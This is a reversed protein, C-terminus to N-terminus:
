KTHLLSVEVSGEGCCDCSILSDPSAGIIPDDTSIIFGCNVMRFNLHQREKMLRYADLALKEHQCGWKTAEVSFRYSEPYWISKILSVSPMDSNTHLVSHMKSATIHGTRFRFWVHSASQKCTASEVAAQQSVSVTFTLEKSKVLLERYNLSICEPEYLESLVQLYIEQISKPKYQM